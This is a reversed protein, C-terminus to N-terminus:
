RARSCPTPVLCFDFDLKFRSWLPIATPFFHSVCFAVMACSGFVRGRSALNALCVVPHCLGDRGRARSLLHRTRSRGDDLVLSIGGLRAEGLSTCVIGEDNLVGFFMFLGMIVPKLDLCSSRSNQRRGHYCFLLTFVARCEIHRILCRRTSARGM